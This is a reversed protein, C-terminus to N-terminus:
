DVEEAAFRDLIRKYNRSAIGTMGLLSAVLFRSNAWAVVAGAHLVFPFPVVATTGDPWRRKGVRDDQACCVSEGKSDTQSTSPDREAAGM